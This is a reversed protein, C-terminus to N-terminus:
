NKVVYPCHGQDLPRIIEAAPLEALIKYYDWPGRTETPSKVEVLHFNKMLRGDARVRSGQGFVPDNAPLERMKAAVARSEDTGAAEVARLYALVASYVGAHLHTPARDTKMAVRWRATFARSADSEDWYWPSVVQLGQAVPLGLSQVNQIYFTTGALKQGGKVLGFDAAAKIANTTDEGANLIGITKAGSAQAQLIYSGFDMTGVPHRVSGIVRGGAATVVSTLQREMAQGFAYDATIFYWTDGGTRVVAKGIGQAIATTDYNWMFGTPSCKEGFLADSASSVHITVRKDRTLEQVALSVASNGFDILMDVGDIDMWRRAM